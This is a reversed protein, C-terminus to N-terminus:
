FINKAQLIIQMQFHQLLNEKKLRSYNDYATLPKVFLRLIKCIM